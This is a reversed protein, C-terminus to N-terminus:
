KYELTLMTIDDSQEAGDAWTALEDRMADDLERPHLDAHRQLFALMREKGYLQGEPNMADTVGDTYLYVADGHELTVTACDYTMSDMAGLFPGGVDEFWQWQGEHRLLPIDHGANVYTLRGTNWDLIAAWMTVFMCTDNDECLHDNTQSVAQVLKLGSRMATAIHTKARMMFLAAPIGKGSVDAILFGLKHDGVMFLDYFDGGVYKAAGMSAYIDFADVGPFPPFKRPLASEQIGKATNLDQEIRRESEAAYDKLSAVAANIYTGLSALERSSRLEVKQNLDGNTIKDLSENAGDIPQEVMSHLLKSAFVFALVLAVGAILTSVLMATTRNSFVTKHSRIQVLYYDGVRKAQAYDLSDAHDSFSPKASNGDKVQGIDRSSALTMTGDSALQAIDQLLPQGDRDTLVAGVAYAENNSAVVTGTGDLLVIDGDKAGIITQFITNVTENREKWDQQKELKAAIAGLQEDMEASTKAIDSYTILTYGMASTVAFVVLLLGFLRSGFVVHLRAGEGPTMVHQLLGDALRVSAFLAVSECALAVPTSLIPNKVFMAITDESFGAVSLHIAFNFVMDFLLTGVACSLAILLINRRGAHESRELRSFALGFGFGALALPVTATLPNLFAYEMWDLPQLVSHVSLATGTLAGQLLGWSPGLLFATVVVPVLSLMEHAGEAGSGFDTFGLQLFVMSCSVLLLALFVGVKTKRSRGQLRM